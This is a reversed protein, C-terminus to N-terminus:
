NGNLITPLSHRLALVQRVNNDITTQSIEGSDIAAAIGDIISDPDVDSRENDPSSVYLLMTNGAEIANVANTVPDSYDPDGSQQLMIMDDTVSIGTFGIQNKLIDHWKTSLSAPLSDVSSYILHGFMIVQAGADIGAVFSPKNHQEWRTFSVDTTPISFHSDEETEGHGPFHKLTSLTLGNAGKVAAAVRQAVATPDGGFVRQYIFSIKDDTVDAVIGFNLNMGVQKLMLSRSHFATETASPPQSKLDAPAPYNDATLRRVIGGEQDIAFLYPLQSNTQLKTTIAALDDSTAPMNDGMFILGGPQYNTLYDQFTSVDTGPLHLILLSAIKQRLSMSALQKDVFSTEAASSSNSSTATKNTIDTKTFILWGAFGALIIVIIACAIIFVKKM